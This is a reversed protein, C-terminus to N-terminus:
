KKKKLDLQIQNKEKITCTKSDATIGTTSGIIREPTVVIFMWETDFKCERGGEMKATFTGTGKYTNVEEQNKLAVDYQVFKPNSGPILKVQLTPGNQHIEYQSGSDSVWIGNPDHKPVQALLFALALVTLKM